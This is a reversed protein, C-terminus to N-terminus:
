QFRVEVGKVQALPHGCDAEVKWARYGHEEDASSNSRQGIRVKAKQYHQRKRNHEGSGGNKRDSCIM